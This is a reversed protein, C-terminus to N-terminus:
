SQECTRWPRKGSGTIGLNNKKNLDMKLGKESGEFIWANFNCREAPTQTHTRAHTHTHSHM